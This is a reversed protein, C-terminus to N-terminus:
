STLDAVTSFNRKNRKKRSSVDLIGRLFVTKSIIDLSSSLSGSAIAPRVPLVPPAALGASLGGDGGEFSWSSSSLSALIVLTFVVRALMESCDAVREFPAPLELAAAVVLAVAEEFDRFAVTVEVLAAGIAEVEAAALFDCLGM